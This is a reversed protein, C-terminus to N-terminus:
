IKKDEEILDIFANCSQLLVKNTFIAKKYRHSYTQDTSVDEHHIVKLKPNYMIKLGDRKVQYHLIYSEMYMFTKAYFCERYKTIFIRSFIYCSGHLPKDFIVENVFNNKKVIVKRESNRKFKDLVYWKFAYLFKIKNKIILVRRKRKLEKLTFNRDAEPNQHKKAKTSYIDPGMVAFKYNRYCDYIEEIFNKQQIVMDNNMVVIFDPDLNERAYRYGFNNGKAFGLNEKTKLVHVNENNRYIKELRKGSNNPSFNDVIIIKKDGEVNSLISEVCAVTEDIVIYHLIVFAIMSNKIM